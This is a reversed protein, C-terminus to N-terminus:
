KCVLEISNFIKKIIQRSIGTLLLKRTNKLNFKVGKQFNFSRLIILFEITSLIASIIKKIQWLKKNTVISIVFNINKITKKLSTHAKEILKGNEIVVENLKKIKKDFELIKVIAFYLLGIELFILIVFLFDLM